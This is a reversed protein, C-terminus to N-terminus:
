VSYVSVDIAMVVRHDHMESKFRVQISAELMVDQKYVLMVQGATFIVPARESIKHVAHQATILTDM